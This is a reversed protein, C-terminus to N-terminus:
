PEGNKTSAFTQRPLACCCCAMCGLTGHWTAGRTHSHPYSHTHTHTHVYTRPPPPTQTVYERNAIIGGVMTSGNNGGLGVLLVGTKPVDRKTLFEYTRKGPKVVCSGDENRTVKTYDYSYKAHISEDTYTVNESEVQFPVSHASSSAAM